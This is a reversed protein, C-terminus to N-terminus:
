NSDSAQINEYSLMEMSGAFSKLEESSHEYSIDICASESRM